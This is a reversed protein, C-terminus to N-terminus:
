IVVCQRIWFKGPPTLELPPPRSGIIKALQELFNSSFSFFNSEYPNEGLIKSLGYKDNKPILFARQAYEVPISKQKWLYSEIILATIQKKAVPVRCGGVIYFGSRFEAFFQFAQAWLFQCLFEGEQAGFVVM